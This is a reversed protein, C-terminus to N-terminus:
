VTHENAARRAKMKGALWLVTLVVLAYLCFTAGKAIEFSVISAYINDPILSLYFIIVSIPIMLKGVDVTGFWDRSGVCCAYFMLTGKTVNIFLWLALFPSELHEIFEFIAIDKVLEIVPFILRQTFANGYTGMTILFIVEFLCVVIFMSWLLAPFVQGKNKVQPYILLLVTFESFVSCIGLSGKFVDMMSANFLPEIREMDVNELSLTLMIVLLVVVGPAIIEGWRAISLMGGLALYYRLVLLMFIVLELPTEPLVLSVIIEAIIRIIVASFFVLPLLLLLAYLRGFIPGFLSLCYGILSMEQMSSGIQKILWLIPITMLSGILISLWGSHGSAQALTRPLTFFITGFAIFCLLIMIQKTTLHASM